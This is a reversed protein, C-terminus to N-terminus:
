SKPKLILKMGTYGQKMEPVVVKQKNPIIYVTNGKQYTVLNNYSITNRSSVASNSLLSGKYKLGTKLNFSLDKASNVNVINLSVKAKKKGVGKDAWTTLMFGNLVSLLLVIKTAKKM